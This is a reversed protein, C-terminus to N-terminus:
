EVIFRVVKETDGAKLKIFYIGKALQSVDITHKSGSNGLFTQPTTYEKGLVDVITYSVQQPNDLEIDINLINNTPNPYLKISNSADLTRVSVNITLVGDNSITECGLLNLQCRYKYQNFNDNVNNVVLTNTTVGTYTTSNSLNAFGSGKDEQWRYTVGADSSNVVFTVDWDKKALEPKPQLSITPLPKVTLGVNQSIDSCMFTNTVKLRYNGTAKAALNEKVANPIDISDRQWQYMLGASATGAITTSDGFCFTTTGATITATPSPNVGIYVSDSTSSCSGIVVNATYLGANNNTPKSIKPNTAVSFYGNPGRWNFVAGPVSNGILVLTDNDCVTDKKASIIPRQPPPYIFLNVTDPESQCLGDEVYVIYDGRLPTDVNTFDFNSTNSAFGNPGTWYYKFTTQPSTIKFKSNDGVCKAGDNSAIPIEPTQNVIVSTSVPFSPCGNKLAVVSYVGSLSTDSNVIITDPTNIFPSKPAAWAYTAGSVTDVSLKLSDGSCVPSNNNVKPANPTSYVTKKISDACGKFWGYLTDYLTVDYDARINYKKSGDIASTSGGNDGYNWRHCVRQINYFAYRNYFPSSFVASFNNKFNITNTASNCGVFTFDSKITYKVYPRLVFDANFAIGGVNVNYSRVYNAGIRVSSLWESRGNPNTAAYDNALVSVNTNSTNEVTLVYAFNLTIPTGFVARKILGAIQGAGFTSDVRLTVSRLPAGTPLSDAGARYLNCTINVTDSSNASQWAYFDFGEVTISQPAPFWQAFANGSNLSNLSLPRFTSTKLYTYNVTDVGCDVQSHVQSALFILLVVLKCKLLLSKKM